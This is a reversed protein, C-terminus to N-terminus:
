SALLMGNITGSSSLPLDVLQPFPGCLLRKELFRGSLSLYRISHANQLIKEANEPSITNLSLKRLGGLDMKEECFDGQITTKELSVAHSAQLFTAL